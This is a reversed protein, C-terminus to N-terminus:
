AKKKRKPGYGKKKMSQVVAWPNEVSPQRKLAKVIREYGKPTVQSIAGESMRTCGCGGDVEYMGCESCPGENTGCECPGENTGCECPGHGESMGAGCSCEGEIPMMGCMPCVGGEPCECSYAPMGCGVCTEEVDGSMADGILDGGGVHIHFEIPDGFAEKLRSHINRTRYM